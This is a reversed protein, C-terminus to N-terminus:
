AHRSGPTIDPEEGDHPLVKPGVIGTVLAGLLMVVISVGIVMGCGWHHLMVPIFFAGLVAGSKGIAASIGVGSGRDVVPYVQSPLIFTILHPGANLFLEFLVFGTIAIWAPWHQLYAVLLIGLGAASGVFGWTQMSVHYLRRVIALGLGFGVAMFVSLLITIEVSNIIHEIRPASPSVYDIGLSMVLIPIFIGIGYVGLGECAWPVGTFFIKRANRKIFVGMSEKAQTAVTDVTAPVPMYVDKGVFYHVAKEAEQVHGRSMLWGPSETFHVRMLLIVGAIATMIFLLGPWPEASTWGRIIFYCLAAVVVSGVAASAKAVGVMFFKWKKPMIESIYDSDISYEGGVSLGMFFLCIYLLWLPHWFYAVLSAAVMMAPCVRAVVLYGWRDSLRGFLVTGLTRGCLAICGLVGQAIASMEPHTVVEIMPIIVGVLTALGQGIFQGMSAVILVWIQGGRLPMTELNVAGKPIPAGANSKNETSSSSDSM